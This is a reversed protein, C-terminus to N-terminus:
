LLHVFVKKELQTAINHSDFNRGKICVFVSEKTVTRSDSSVEKVEIDDYKNKVKIGSLLMGLKVSDRRLNLWTQFM